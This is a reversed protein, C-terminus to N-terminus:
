GGLNLAVILIFFTLTVLTSFILLWWATANECHGWLVWLLIAWLLTWLILMLVSFNRRAPAITALLATYLILGVGILISIIMQWPVGSVNCVDGTFSKTIQASPTAAIDEVASSGDYVLYQPVPDFTVHKGIPVDLVPPPCQM